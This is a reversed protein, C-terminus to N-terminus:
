PGSGPADERVAVTVLNVDADALMTREDDGVRDDTILTGIHALPFMIHSSRRSFKSSDALVVLEDAQDFLRQEAQILLPDTELLGHRSIGQAGVFMRRAYFHRSVDNDFPTLMVGQERYITGGPMSVTHGTQRLLFEAIPFSNTLVQLRLGDLFHVMQFTTTGGNIIVAEGDECMAAAREAIARKHRANIGQSVEFPRGSLRVLQAPSLAEAGGRVRRLAKKLHLAAVDRRVTAASAETLAMIEQTTVFPRERVAQLILRHREREHM